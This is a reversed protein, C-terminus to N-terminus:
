KLVEKNGNIYYDIAEKRINLYSIYDKHKDEGYYDVPMPEREICFVTSKWYSVTYFGGDNALKCYIIFTYDKELFMERYYAKDNNVNPVIDGVKVNYKEVTDPMKSCFEKDVYYYDEKIMIINGAKVNSDSDSAYYVEEIQVPTRVSCFRLREEETNDFLHPKEKYIEDFTSYNKSEGAVKVKLIFLNDGGLTNFYHDNLGKLSGWKGLHQDSNIGESWKIESVFRMDNSYSFETSNSACSCFALLLMIASLVISVTKKM